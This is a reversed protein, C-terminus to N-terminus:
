SCGLFTRLLKKLGGKSKIYVVFFSLWHSDKKQRRYRTM